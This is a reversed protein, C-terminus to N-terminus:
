APSNTTPILGKLLRYLTPALALFSMVSGIWSNLCVPLTVVPSFFPAEDKRCATESSTSWSPALMVPSSSECSSASSPARSPPLCWGASMLCPSLCALMLSDLPIIAAASSMWTPPPGPAEALGVSLAWSVRPLSLATAPAVAPAVAPAM